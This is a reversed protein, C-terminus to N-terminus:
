FLGFYLYIVIEFFNKLHTYSWLVSVQVVVKCLKDKMTHTGVRYHGSVQVKESLEVHSRYKMENTHLVIIGFVIKERSFVRARFVSLVWDFGFSSLSLQLSFKPANFSLNTREQKCDFYQSKWQTIHLWLYTILERKVFCTREQRLHWQYKGKSFFLFLLLYKERFAM